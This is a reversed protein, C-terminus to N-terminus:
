FEAQLMALPVDRVRNFAMEARDLTERTVGYVTEAPATPVERYLHSKYPIRSIEKTM